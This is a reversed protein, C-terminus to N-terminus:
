LPPARGSDGGSGRRARRHGQRKPPRLRGGRQRSRARRHGEKGEAAGGHGGIGRGSGREGKILSEALRWASLLPARGSDGGNGGSGRWARLQETALRKAALWWVVASIGEAAGGHGGSGRGSGPEGM